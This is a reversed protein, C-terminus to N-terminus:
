RRSKTSKTSKQRRKGATKLWRDQRSTEDSQKGTDLTLKGDVLLRYWLGLHWFIFIGLISVVVLWSSWGVIQQRQMVVAAILGFAIVMNSMAMQKIFPKFGYFRRSPRSSFYWAVIGSIVLFGALGLEIGVALQSPTTTLWPLRDHVQASLFLAAMLVGLVAGIAVELPRHGLIEKLHGYKNQTKITGSLMLDDILHNIARAQEGAARRVGLSDYMVIAAFVGTIGFLPSGPGGEILAVTALSAVTASHVSPMGGSSFLLNPKYEGKFVALFFKIGQAIAWTVLPVYLYESIQM